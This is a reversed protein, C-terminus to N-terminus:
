YANAFVRVREYLQTGTVQKYGSLGIRFIARSEHLCLSSVTEKTRVVIGQLRPQCLTRYQLYLGYATM